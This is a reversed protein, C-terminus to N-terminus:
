GMPVPVRGQTHIAQKVDLNSAEFRYHLCVPNIGRKIIDFIIMQPITIEKHLNWLM